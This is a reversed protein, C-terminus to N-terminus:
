WLAVDCVDGRSSVTNLLKLQGTKTDMAFASVSGAKKGEYNSIENVAYLFKRNPHIALFSPSVTEGVLGIATLKGTAPQFRWAYIGNSKNPRTYTGVYAIYEGKAAKAPQAMGSPLMCALTAAFLFLNSILRM